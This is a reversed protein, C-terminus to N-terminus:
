AYTQKLSSTGPAAGKREEEPKKTLRVEGDLGVSYRGSGRWEKRPCENRFENNEVVWCEYNWCNEFSFSPFNSSICATVM